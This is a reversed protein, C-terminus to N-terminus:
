HLGWVDIGSHTLSTTSSTTSACGTAPLWPDQFSVFRKLWANSSYICLYWFIGRKEPVLEQPYCQVGMMIFHHAFRHAISLLCFARVRMMLSATKRGCKARIHALTWPQKSTTLGTIIVPKRPHAYDHVFRDMSLEQWPVRDIPVTECGKGSVVGGNAKLWLEERTKTIELVKAFAHREAEVVASQRRSLKSKGSKNTEGSKADPDPRPKKVFMTEPITHCVKIIEARLRKVADPGATYM